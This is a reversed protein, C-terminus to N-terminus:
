EKCRSSWEEKLLGSLFVDNYKGNKYIEKRRIGEEKFGLIRRFLVAVEKSISGVAIRNMNLQEFAHKILLQSAEVFYKLKRYEPEGIYESLECKRNFDDIQLSVIGILINDENHVIGLQLKKPNNEINNKFYQLQLAKTNPFRHKQMNMTGVADNFWKYWNTDEILRENLAVLNVYQGPIFIDFIIEEHM